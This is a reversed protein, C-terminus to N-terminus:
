AAAPTDRNWGAMIKDASLTVEVTHTDGVNPYTKISTLSGNEDYEPYGGCLYAASREEPRLQVEKGSFMEAFYDPTIHPEQSFNDVAYNGQDDRYLRASGISYHYKGDVMQIGHFVFIAEKDNLWVPPMTSGIKFEAWPPMEDKPFELHQEAHATGIVDVSFLLLRHTEDEPRFMFEGQGFPTTNKGPLLHYMNPGGGVPTTERGEGLETIFYTSPLAGKRLQETTTVSYSPFPVYRGDVQALRSYGLVVLGKHQMARADEIQDGAGDPEWISSLEVVESPEGALVALMLAGTDPEGPKGREKVYRGLLFTADDERWVAANFFGEPLGPIERAELIVGSDVEPTIAPQEAVGNDDILSGLRLALEGRGGGVSEAIHGRELPSVTM